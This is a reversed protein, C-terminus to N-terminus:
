SSVSTSNKEWDISFLKDRAKPKNELMEPRELIACHGHFLVGDEIIISPTRINGVMVCTSLLVVKSTARINGTVFGGVIVTDAEILCKARGRKGVLVRGETEINGDFDGDIRLLGNVRMNGQFYTGEGIISNILAQNKISKDM